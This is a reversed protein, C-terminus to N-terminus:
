PLLLAAHAGRGAGVRVGTFKLSPRSGGQVKWIQVAGSEFDNVLLHEGTADFVLGQPGAGTPVDDVRALEGTEPNLTLLTITGGRTYRPDDEYLFSMEINGTAILDGRPSITLGEPSQGVFASVVHGHGGSAGGYRVVSVSGAPANEIDHTTADGWMLDATVFYWGNPTWSGTYPFNGVKVPEGSPWLAVGEATREVNYFAVADHGIVTVALADGAPSFAITGGGISPGAEINNLPITSVLAPASGSIDVFDVALGGPTNRLAAILEDSPHLSITTVGRGLDLQGTIRPSMPDSLDVLTILGSGPLDRLERAGAGARGRTALVIATDGASNLVVSRPAGLVCNPVEIQTFRATAGEDGPEPLPLAVVTLLDPAQDAESGNRGYLLGDAFVTGVMDGDSVVVIASGAPNASSAGGSACGGLASLAAGGLVVLACQVLNRQAM